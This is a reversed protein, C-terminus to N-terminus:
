GALFFPVGISLSMVYADNSLTRIGDCFATSGCDVSDNVAGTAGASDLASSTDSDIGSGAQEAVLNDCDDLFDKVPGVQNLKSEPNIPAQKTRNEFGSAQIRIV